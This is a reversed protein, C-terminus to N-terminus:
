TQNDKLIDHNIKHYFLMYTATKRFFKIEAATIRPKQKEKLKLTESGYLIITIALTNNIKLPKVEPSKFTKSNLKHNGNDTIKLIEKDSSKRRCITHMGPLQIYSNM